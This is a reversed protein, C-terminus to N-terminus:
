KGGYLEELAIRLVSQQRNSLSEIKEGELYRKYLGKKNLRADMIWKIQVFENTKLTTQLMSPIKAQESLKVEAPDFLADRHQTVYAEMLTDSAAQTDQTFDEKGGENLKALADSGLLKPALTVLFGAKARETEDNSLTSPLQGSM